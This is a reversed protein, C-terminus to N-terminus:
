ISLSLDELDDSNVVFIHVFEYEGGAERDIQAGEVLASLGEVYGEPSNLILLKQETKIRLKKVLGSEVM